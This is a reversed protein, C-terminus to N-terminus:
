RDARGTAEHKNWLSQAHITIRGTSRLAEDLYYTVDSVEYNEAEGVIICEGVRPIVPLDLDARRSKGSDVSDILV